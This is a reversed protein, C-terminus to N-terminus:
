AGAEEPAPAAPPMPGTWPWDACANARLAYHGQLGAYRGAEPNGAGGLGEWVHRLATALACARTYCLAADQTDGHRARREGDLTATVMQRDLERLHRGLRATPASM